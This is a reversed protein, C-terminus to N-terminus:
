TGEKNTEILINNGDKEPEIILKVGDKINEKKILLHEGDKLLEDVFLPANNVGLLNNLWNSNIYLEKEKIEKCYSLENCADKFDEASNPVDGRKVAGLFQNVSMKAYKCLCICREWNNEECERPIMKGFLPEVPWSTLAWGSPSLLVFKATKGAELSNITRELNDLNAKAQQARTKQTSIGALSVMLYFLFILCIVAIALKVANEILFIGRKNNM